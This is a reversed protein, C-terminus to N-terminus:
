KKKKGTILKKVQSFLEKILAAAEKTSGLAAALIFGIFAIVLGTNILETSIIQLQGIAVIVAYLMIVFSTLKGLLEANIDEFYGAILRIVSGIFGSVLVAVIIVFLSALISPLMETMYAITNGIRANVGLLKFTGILLGLMSIWYAINALTASFGEPSVKKILRNIGLLDALKELALINLLWQIITKILSLIWASFAFFLVALAIKGVILGLSQLLDLIPVYLALIDKFFSQIAVM